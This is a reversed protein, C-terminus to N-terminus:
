WPLARFWQWLLRLYGGQYHEYRPEDQRQSDYLEAGSLQHAVRLQNCPVFVYEHHEAHYNFCFMGLVKEGPVSGTITRVTVRNDPSAHESFTRAFAFFKGFTLLPVLWLWLYYQWGVTSSFALLILGQTLLMNRTGVRSHERETSRDPACPLAQRLGLFQLLAYVGSLNMLCRAIFQRRSRPFNAYNVYDPDRQPDGLYRHHDLHVQRYNESFGVPWATLLFALRERHPNGFRLHLGEHLANFLALQGWGIIIWAAVSVALFLALGADRCAHLVLTALLFIGYLALVKPYIWNDPNRLEQLQTM